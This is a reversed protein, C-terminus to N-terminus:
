QRWWPRRKEQCFDCEKKCVGCVDSKRIAEPVYFSTVQDTPEYYDYVKVPVPQAGAVLDSREMPVRFCMEKKGIEDLYLIIKKDGDEIRKLMKHKSIGAKDATFGSPYGIEIVSMGAAGEKLYSTCVEVVFHDISEEPITIKSYFSPKDDDRDINYFVAVEVLALGTGNAVINVESIDTPLERSQLVLANDNTVTFQERLNSGTLGTVIINANFDKSYVKAATKALAQLAVITDQTSSYGGNPNRQSTLWKLVQLSDDQNNAATLALLAYATLEINLAKGKDKEWPNLDPNTPATAKKWYKMGGEVTSMAQLKDLAEQARPGGGLTLVYAIIATEYLDTTLPLQDELFKMALQVSKNIQADVGEVVRAELLAALVFATLSREGATSGGQMEKHLVRGPEPFSGNKNQYKLIWSVTKKIVDDDVFIYPKAQVFSKLVFASLWMSGSKDSNGFASFSGDDHQYTLERQYGKIMFNKAKQFTGEDLNNTTTLYETIFINPAFNLMNQEGCGYPMKLLSDLGNISPGMLDGVVTVLVRESGKVTAVPFSIPITTSFNPTQKLNILTPINYEHPTGEPKVLLQKEVADAAYLSQAHAQVKIKGIKKPIIPFYVAAASNPNIKVFRAVDASYTSTWWSTIHINEYEPNRKLLVYAFLPFPSYNFVNAQLIVKEGRVVSYPLQLSVFFPMFTNLKASSESVGLGTSPHVAFATAIWSTITDPVTDEFVVTGNGVANQSKWLWTEPFLKRVRSPKAFESKSVSNSAVSKSLMMAMPAADMMVMDDEVMMYDVYVPEEHNYILADTIYALGAGNFVDHADDGQAPMPWRWCFFDACPHRGGKTDYQQLENKVDDATVDNGTKLLLVSKDVALVNVKSGPDANVTLRIKDAPQVQPKDFNIQVQNEFIGEVNFTLGDAVVEGDPRVYYLMLKAKPAMDATVPFNLIGPTLDVTGSLVVNGKSIVQYAATKQEPDTSRIQIGAVDGTKPNDTLLRLQLFSDSPSNSKKINHYARIKDYEAAIDVRTVDAPINLPIEIIGDSPIPFFMEPQKEETERPWWWGRPSIHIEPIIEKELILGGTSNLPPPPPTTSTTTTTTTTVIPRYFTVNVSVKGNKISPPSDDQEAVKLVALYNLGPKYNDPLSDPFDLKIAKDFFQIKEPTASLKSGTLTETVNAGVKFFRRDMFEEISKLRKMPVTFTATGDIPLQLEIESSVKVRTGNIWNFRPHELEIRVDATGKVPKGYTYKATVKGEFDTDTTRGYPPLEVSVEFKPLVYEDVTFTKETKEKGLSVKIKWDGLVPADSMPLETEFIGGGEMLEKKTVDYQNIKNGVPDFIDVDMKDFIVKLDPTVGFIRFHVTQGPKYIAKDTQIFVSHSKSDYSLDTSNEFTLGGTGVIKLIYQGEPLNDPIPLIIDRAQKDVLTARTTSVPEPKIPTQASTTPEPPSFPLFRPGFDKKVGKELTATVEVPTLPDVLLSGQITLNHGPRITNPSIFLYTNESTVYSVVYTLYLFLCRGLFDKKEMIM